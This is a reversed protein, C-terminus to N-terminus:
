SASEREADSRVVCFHNGAPDALTMWGSGDPNRRDAVPTAGLGLIREVEQDRTSGAACIDFHIRGPVVQLDEVEIFLLRQEGDPDLIMCEEDGAENPDGEVDVYGLVEKWWESLEFADACNVSTHSLRAVM